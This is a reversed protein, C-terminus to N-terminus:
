EPAAKGFAETFAKNVRDLRADGLEWRHMWADREGILISERKDRELERKAFEAERKADEAQHLKWFYAIVGFLTGIFGLLGTIVVGPPLGGAVDDPM